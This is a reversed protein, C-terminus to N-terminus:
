RLWHLVGFNSLFLVEGGLVLPPSRLGSAPTYRGLLTGSAPDLAVLSDKATGVLLANAALVPTAVAGGHLPTEWLIAGDDASLALSSGDATGAYVRGDGVAFGSGLAVERRWLDKGTAADLCVAPGRFAGVYVRGNAVTPGAVVDGFLGGSSVEARWLVTGLEADLAVVGGDAFGAFVRSDDAALGVGRWLANRHPLKRGYQWLPRGTAAELCFLNQDAVAVYVRGQTALPSTVVPYGAVFRWVEAGDPRLARVVGQDDGFVLLGDVYAATGYVRGRVPVRWLFQGDAVRVADFSRGSHGLYAVGGVVVPAAYEEPAYGGTGALSLVRALSLDLGVQETTRGTRGPDGGEMAWTPAAPPAAVPAAVEIRGFGCGGLALGLAVVWRVKM